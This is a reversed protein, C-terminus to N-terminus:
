RYGFFFCMTSQNRKGQSWSTEGRKRTSLRTSGCWLSIRRPSPRSGETQQHTVLSGIDKVPAMAGGSEECGMDLQSVAAIKAADM